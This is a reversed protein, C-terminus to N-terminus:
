SEVYEWLEKPFRPYHAKAMQPMAVMLLKRPRTMAVYAIRMMEHNLDGKNLFSPTLTNGKTKNVYLLMADYTEGKVGHVSSRTYDSENKKEFFNKLPSEKFDPNKKDSRKIKIITDLDKNSRVVFKVNFLHQNLKKKFETVWIGIPTDILPYDIMIDICIKEWEKYQMTQSIFEKIVDQSIFNDIVLSYLAQECYRYAKKRSGCYWEFASKAFMKVEDSKWLGKVDTKTHVRGRTVVAVKSPLYEIGLEKCKGRYFELISQESTGLSYLYLIPKQVYHAHQGKAENPSRDKMSYSFEKVANCIHQSSRFNTTLYKTDWHEMKMKDTFCKPTADRWEYISQDPDGVLFIEKMGAEVLLDFVGMQEESTDQAEDIIIVPFRRAIANAIHPNEKLIRYAFASVERQFIIGKKILQKKLEECPPVTRKANPKCTVINEGRYFKGDIGYYFNEIDKTCGQKYCETRWYVKHEWMNNIAIQPRDRNENYLYGYQLVIFSNIFSDVTGIFHPYSDIRSKGTILSLQDKVEESAVNTFSLVAIGQHSQKWNELYQEVKKAVVFTKGSGPCASLVCKGSLELFDNQEDTFNVM